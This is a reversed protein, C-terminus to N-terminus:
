GLDALWDQFSEWGMRMRGWFGQYEGCWAPPEGNEPKCEEFEQFIPVCIRAEATLHMLCLIELAIVLCVLIKWM